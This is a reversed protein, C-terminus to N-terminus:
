DLLSLFSGRVLWLLACWLLDLGDVGRTLINKNRSRSARTLGINHNLPNNVLNKSTHLDALEEDGGKSDLRCTLELFPQLLLQTQYELLSGILFEALM